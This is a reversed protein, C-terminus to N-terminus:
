GVVGYETLVSEIYGEMSIDVSSNERDFIFTMGLYSHYNGNSKKVKVYKEQLHKAVSELQEKSKCTMMLDDVYVVITFQEGKETRNFVCQDETNAIFGLQELTNRIHKYWLKSSQVCGYLAKKLKVVVEHRENKYQEYSSDMEALLKAIKPSLKMFIETGEISANLYANGIDLTLVERQEKAAIGAVTFVSSVQPTPSSTDPYLSRDQRHGGAVLRSKLKDFQGNPLFKEKLFMKSPIIQGHLKILDKKSLKVPVWTEKSLIDQLEKKISDSAASGYLKM